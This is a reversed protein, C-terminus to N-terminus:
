CGTANQYGSCAGIYIPDNIATIGWFNGHKVEHVVRKLLVEHTAKNYAEMGNWRFFNDNWSKAWASVTAM